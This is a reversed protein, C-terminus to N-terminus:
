TGLLKTTSILALTERRRSHITRIVNRVLISCLIQCISNMDYILQDVLVFIPM